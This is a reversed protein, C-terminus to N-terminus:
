KSYCSYPPVHCSREEGKDGAAAEAFRAAARKEDAKAAKPRTRLSASVFFGHDSREQMVNVELSESPIDERRASPTGPYNLGMLEV